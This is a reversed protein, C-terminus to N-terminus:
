VVPVAYFLRTFPILMPFHARLEEFIAKCDVENFANALDVQMVLLEPDMDLLARIEAVISECGGPNSVAFQLPSFFQQFADRMQLAISCSVLQQLVEAIAIPQVRNPGDPVTKALSWSVALALLQRLEPHCRGVHWTAAFQLSDYSLPWTSLCFIAISSM